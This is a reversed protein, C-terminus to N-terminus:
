CPSRVLSLSVLVLSFRSRLRTEMSGKSCSKTMWSQDAHEAREQKVCKLCTGSFMNGVRAMSRNFSEVHISGCTGGVFV